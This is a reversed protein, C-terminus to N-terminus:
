IKVKLKYEILDLLDDNVFGFKNEERLKIAIINQIKKKFYPSLNTGYKELWQLSQLLNYSSDTAKLLKILVKDCFVTDYNYFDLIIYLDYPLHININSPRLSFILKFLKISEDTRIIKLVYLLTTVRAMEKENQLILELSEFSYQSIIELAIEKKFLNFKHIISGPNFNKDFIIKQQLDEFTLENLISFLISHKANHNILSM